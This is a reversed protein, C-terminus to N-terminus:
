RKDAPFPPSVYLNTVPLGHQLALRVTQSTGGNLQPNYYAICASSREVMRLNREYMCGDFYLDSIYFIEDAKSKIQQYLRVLSLDKWLASQDRCPLVLILSIPEGSEKVRAVQAAALTDFGMAGGCIFARYGNQIHRYIEDRTRRALQSIEQQALFRHGTFFCTEAPPLPHYM